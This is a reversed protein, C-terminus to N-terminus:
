KLDELTKNAMVKQVQDGVEGWVQKQGCSGAQPCGMCAGLPVPGELAEIAQAVSIQGPKKALLYGGARGEKSKILGAERLPIVIQELFKLPLKKAKAVQRLSVPKQGHYKALYGLFQLGYDSKKSLDFM